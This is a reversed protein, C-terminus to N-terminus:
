LNDTCSMLFYKTGEYIIVLTCGHLCFFIFLSTSMSEHQLIETLVKWHLEAVIPQKELLDSMLKEQLIDKYNGVVRTSMKLHWTKNSWCELLWNADFVMLDDWKLLNFWFGNWWCNKSLLVSPSYVAAHSIQTLNFIKCWSMLKHKFSSNSSSYLQKILM